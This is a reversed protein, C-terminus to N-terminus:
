SLSLVVIIIEPKIEKKIAAAADEATLAKRTKSKLRFMLGFIAKVIDLLVYRLTILQKDYMSGPDTGILRDSFTIIVNFFLQYIDDIYVGIECNTPVELRERSIILVAYDEAAQAQPAAAPLSMLGALAFFSWRM